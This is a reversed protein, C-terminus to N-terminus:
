AASEKGTDPQKPYLYTLTRRLDAHFFREASAQRFVVRNGRSDTDPRGAFASGPLRHLLEEAIHCSAKQALTEFAVHALRLEEPGPNRRCGTIFRRVLPDLTHLLKTGPKQGKDDPLPEGGVSRALHAALNDVARSLNEAQECVKIVSDRVATDARVAAVPLPLSDFLIDDVISSQNGYVIRCTETRLPYDFPLDGHLTATAVQALLRSTEYGIKKGKAPTTDREITLLSDLGQWAARGRQQRHPFRVSGKADTKIAWCTHPEWAPVQDIRDGAALVVQRVRLGEPTEEPVLRIRREQWTFLDLPGRPSRQTWVPTHPARTWQPVDEPARPGQPLNLVITDFLTRGTLTVVGLYGLPGTRNGTTKGSKTEPDGVTGGKIAATDWCQCHLMWRVAEGVTLPIPDAETRADRLPTNNGTAVHPMLLSVPKYEGNTHVLGPVQGFPRTEHFVQFRDLNDDLYANLRAREESSFRGAEMWDAWTDADVPGLAHLVVPILVQRLLVPTMTPLDPALGDLTHADLVAARLAIEAYKGEVQM